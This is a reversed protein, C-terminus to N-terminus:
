PKLKKTVEISFRLGYEPQTEQPEFMNEKQAVIKGDLLVYQVIKPAIQLGRGPYGPVSMKNLRYILLCVSM